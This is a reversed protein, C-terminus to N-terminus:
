LLVFTTRYQPPRCIMQPYAQLLLECPSFIVKLVSHGSSVFVRRAKTQVISLLILPCLSPSHWIMGDM